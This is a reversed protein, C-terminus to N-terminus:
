SGKPLIKTVFQSSVGAAPSSGPSIEPSACPSAPPRHCLWAPCVQTCIEGCVLNAPIGEMNEHRQLTLTSCCLRIHGLAWSFCPLPVVQGQLPPLHGPHDGARSGVERTVVACGMRQALSPSFSFPFLCSSFVRELINGERGSTSHPSQSPEWLLMFWRLALSPVFCLSLETPVCGRMRCGCQRVWCLLVEHFAREARLMQPTCAQGQTLFIPFSPIQEQEKASGLPQPLARIGFGGRQEPIQAPIAALVWSLFPPPQQACGFSAALLPRARAAGGCGLSPCFASLDWEQGKLVESSCPCCAPVDLGTFCCM